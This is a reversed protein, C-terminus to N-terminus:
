KSCFGKPGPIGGRGGVLTNKHNIINFVTFQKSFPIRYILNSTPIHNTIAEIIM